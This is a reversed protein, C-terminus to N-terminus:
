MALMCTLDKNLKEGSVLSTILRGLSITIVSFLFTLQHDSEGRRSYECIVM